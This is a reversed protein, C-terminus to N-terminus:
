LMGPKGPVAALGSLAAFGITNGDKEASVIQPYAKEGESREVVDIGLTVDLGLDGQRLLRPM